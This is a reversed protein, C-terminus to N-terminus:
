SRATMIPDLGCLRFPLRQAVATIGAVVLGQERVALAACETWGSHIATLTLSHVFNGSQKVGGCHEVMDCELYAPGM